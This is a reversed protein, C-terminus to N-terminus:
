RIYRIVQIRAVRYLALLIHMIFCTYFHAFCKFATNVSENRYNSRFVLICM